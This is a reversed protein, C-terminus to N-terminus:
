YGEARLQTYADDKSKGERILASFRDQASPKASQSGQGGQLTAPGGRGKTAIDRYRTLEETLQDFKSLVKDATDTVAPLYRDVYEGAESVPMGAGTLARQLGDRGSQIQRYIEGPRGIGFRAKAGDWAGTVGGDALEQRIQPAKELFVQTLAMRGALEAPLSKEANAKDAALKEQFTLQRDARANDAARDSRTLDFQERQLAQNAATNAQNREIESKRLDFDRSDRTVAQENAERQLGFSRDANQQAQLRDARGTEFNRQDQWRRYRENETTQRDRAQSQLIAPLNGLPNFRNGSLLAMGIASLTNGFNPGSDGAEYSKGMMGGSFGSGGISGTTQPDMAGAGASTTSAAITPTPGDLKSTWKSALQGATLGGGGNLRAADGGVVSAASAGPNSLLKAAGGAGQQHALYLEGTTPDRGLRSRLYDMNDAALDAAALSAMVPNRKEASNNLGYERGTSNIFQFLGEASSNPNKANPNGRSEIKAVKALYGSPLGNEAELVSFLRNIDGSALAATYDPNEGEGLAGANPMGTGPMRVAFDTMLPM